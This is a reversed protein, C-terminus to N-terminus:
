FEHYLIYLYGISYFPLWYNGELCKFLSKLIKYSFKELDPSVLNELVELFGRKLDDYEIERM